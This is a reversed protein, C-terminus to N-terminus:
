KYIRKAWTKSYHFGPHYGFRKALLWEVDGAQKVSCNLRQIVEISGKYGEQRYEMFRRQPNSTCGIKRGPLHYIYFIGM